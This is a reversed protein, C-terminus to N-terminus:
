FWRRRRRYRRRRNIFENLLIISVLDRLLSQRRRQTYYVNKAEVMSAEEMDKVREYIRDVIRDLTVRDPYEDFMVSGDYELKDCEDNVENLIRRATNPYLRTFYNM